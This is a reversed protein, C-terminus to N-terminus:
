FDFTTNMHIFWMLKFSAAVNQLTNGEKLIHLFATPQVILRCSGHKCHKHQCVSKILFFFGLCHVSCDM